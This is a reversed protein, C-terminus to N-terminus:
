FKGERVIASLPSRSNPAERAQLAEPLVSKDGRKGIAIIMEVRHEAPLNLAETAKAYDFGIMAHAAWGMKQAQLALYGWAAGCDLAHTFSPVETPSAPTSMKLKSVLVVLASANKAWSQNNANLFGLFQAWQASERRAYVFRWPQSNYSSPAWRAADFLTMLDAEPISAATMARPSWRELFMPDIPQETSRSNATPM